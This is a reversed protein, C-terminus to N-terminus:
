RRRRTLVIARGAFGMGFLALGAVVAEWPLTAVLVVCGAALHSLIDAASVGGILALAVFGGVLTLSVRNSITLTLLDSSAAFAMM